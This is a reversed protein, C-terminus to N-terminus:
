LLVQNSMTRFTVSHFDELNDPMKYHYKKISSTLVMEELFFFVLMNSWNTKKISISQWCKSHVVFADTFKIQKLWITRLIFPNKQLCATLKATTSGSSFGSTRPEFGPNACFFFSGEDAKGHEVRLWQPQRWHFTHPWYARLVRHRM